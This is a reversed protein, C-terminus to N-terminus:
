RILKEDREFPENFIYHIFVEMKQGEILFQVKDITDLETLTNVISFITMTEGASGGSHKSKFEQSLNVFCTGEKTDVSLVKTGAPITPYAGEKEPGKILENLLVYEITEKASVTISRGEAVLKDANEDAFYLQSYKYDAVVLESDYVIDDRSMATVLVGDSTKLPEGKVKFVVKTVGEISTLTSVISTCAFIRDIEQKFSFKDSFDITVCEDDLTLSLVATDKPISPNLDTRTPGKILELLVKNALSAVTNEEEIVREETEFRTGASNLFYLEATYGGKKSGCCTLTLLMCLILLISVIRIRTM